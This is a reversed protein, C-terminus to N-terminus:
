PYKARFVIFNLIKGCVELTKGIKEVACDIEEDKEM